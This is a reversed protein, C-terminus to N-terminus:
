QSRSQLRPADIQKGIHIKLLAAGDRAQRSAIGVVEPGEDLAIAGARPHIRAAHLVPRAEDLPRRIMAKQPAVGCRTQAERAIWFVQALQQLKYRHRYRRANGDM